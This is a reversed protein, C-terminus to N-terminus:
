ATVDFTQEQADSSIAALSVPVIMLALRARGAL